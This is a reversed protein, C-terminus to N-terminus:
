GSVDYFAIQSIVNLINISYHKNYCLKLMSFAEDAFLKISSSDIMFETNEENGWHKSFINKIEVAALHKSDSSSKPSTFIDKLKLLTTNVDAKKIKFKTFLIISKKPCTKFFYLCSLNVCSIKM